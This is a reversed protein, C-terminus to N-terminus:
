PSDGSDKKTEAVMRSGTTEFIANELRSAAEQNVQKMLHAYVNLRILSINKFHYPIIAFM